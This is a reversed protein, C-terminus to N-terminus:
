AIGDDVEMSFETRQAREFASRLQQGSLGKPKKPEETKKPIVSVPTVAAAIPPTKVSRLETMMWVMGLAMAGLVFGM